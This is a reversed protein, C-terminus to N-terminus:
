EFRSDDWEPHGIKGKVRKIRGANLQAEISRAINGKKGKLDDRPSATKVKGETLEDIMQQKTVPRGRPSNFFAFMAAEPLMGKYREQEEEPAGITRLLEDAKQVFERAARIKERLLRELESTPGIAGELTTRKMDSIASM